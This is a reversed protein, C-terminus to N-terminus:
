GISCNPNVLVGFGFNFADSIAFVLFANTRLFIPVGTDSNNGGPVTFGATAILTAVIMGSNSTDKM